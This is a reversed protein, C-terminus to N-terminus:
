PSTEESPGQSSSPKGGKKKLLFVLIAAVLVIVIIGIPLGYAEIFSKEEDDAPEEEEVTVTVTDTDTDGDDDEVTLTVTYTGAVDFQFSFTAGYRTVSEGDYVFTWTYNVITGDADSSGTASFTVSDGVTPTSDSVSADAVPPQNEASPESVTITVTDTSWLGGEDTVNLTVVYTGALEFVFEPSVDWMTETAGDYTFTWTYNTVDDSSGSGDFTVTAGVLVSQDPGADAVPPDDVAVVTITVTDTAWNGDDDTVTLTVVFVGVNDFQYTPTEGTLEVPEGDDFTWAFDLEEDYTDSSGSGDFQYTDGATVEDDEGADAIPDETDRVTIVLSDDEASNGSDDTVTLRVTYTGPVAFEHTVIEGSLTIDDVGDFFEWTWSEITGTGSERPDYSENGWLTVTTGMDPNYEDARAVAVPDTIDGITISLTDTDTQAITDTVTLVVTYDGPDVFVHEFVMGMYSVAPLEVIEWEYTVIGVDDDSDIGSFRITSDENYPPSLPSTVKASAVPATDALIDITECASVNGTGDDAWVTYTYTNVATYAHTVTLQEAMDGVSYTGDGFDWTVWVPDDNGDWIDVTFTVEENVTEERPILGTIVPLINSGAPVAEIQATSSVNHTLLEFGDYVHVTLDYIYEADYTHTVSASSGVVWTGDGFDWTYLLEDDPDPDNVVVSYTREDGVEVQRDVLGTTFVPITNVHATAYDSVNHMCGDDIWVWYEYDGASAYTHQASPVSTVTPLSGDDWTWTYKLTDDDPDFAGVSFDMPVGTSGYEDELGDEIIPAANGLVEMLIPTMYTYNVAGDNIYLYVTYEGGTAYAKDASFDVRQNSTTSAFSESAYTGDGFAVTFTLADGEEDRASASFTVTQETFVTGTPEVTFEIVVPAMNSGSSYVYVQATDSVNHDELGTLDDAWVTLQFTGRGRYTHSATDTTTVSVDGDGWYWTFRLDDRPDVDLATVTYDNPVDKEINVYDSVSISPAHNRSVSVLHSETVPRTETGIHDDTVSLTVTFSGDEGFQYEVEQGFLKHGGGFDWTYYLDDDEPDTYDASFVVFSGSDPDVPEWTFDSMRQPAGNSPDRVTVTFGTSTIFFDDFGNSTSAERVAVDAHYIGDATYTKTISGSTSWESKTGDGWFWRYELDTGEEDVATVSYTYGTNIDVNRDVPPTFWQPANNEHPYMIMSSWWPWIDPLLMYSTNWDGLSEPDWYHKNVAYLEDRYAVCQCGRMEYAMHQMQDTIELRRAPDMTMLAEEYLADFTANTWYVDQDTGIADTIFVELITVPEALVGMVWDWLWVDYNAEYWISNMDNVSKLEKELNFGAQRTWTVIMNAATDWQTDGTLTYFRFTLPDTGGERCRPYTTSDTIQLLSGASNYKWGANHLMERAATINFPDPDPYWYHGPNQPPILSDAYSGLGELVDEIFASKNVCYSMAKKVTDNLLWQNNWGHSIPGTLTSRLEDPMQNLNFEYVFGNCQSFGVVHENPMQTTYTIPSVGMAVDIRGEVGLDKNVDTWASTDSTESQIVWEDCHMQWGHNETGYWIPNRKLVATGLTPLGDTAYYFAGSGIPPDNAFTLFNEGEWYYKPLIPSALWSEMVVAFPKGLQVTVWHEGYSISEIVDPFYPHLRSGTNNQLSWFSFAVDEGRVPHATSTPDEPDIFYANDWLWFTWTMYDPTVEWDYALDGIIQTADPNYQLLTSYCPFIFLSEGVMTYTNPNFTSVGDHFGVVGVVFQRDIVEGASAKGASELGVGPMFYSPIGVLLVMFFVAGFLATRSGRGYM